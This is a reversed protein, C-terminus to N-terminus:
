PRILSELTEYLVEPQVPKSLHANLGAQMSRQVDEDFANATLAIIPITKADERDMARIRRTAELGDMEPMRMDMLIADYYGAPHDTVKEVAIRGNVALDVQMGRTQLVMQMIEANIQVDEALLIHRGKLDAKTQKQKKRVGKRNMASRFEEIVAAAFLPKSLFSDVGAELAEELVDDWRYATLIIIASENGVIERIRRTTEVGDMEPMQWDVLILNYPKRRAHRLRVLEVAEGGSAATEADIGAKGLVLKAHECAVPDDDIILVSMDQPHIEGEEEGDERRDADMLTVTVTFVSGKGKESEVEITGNMMEVISKTIALGLGSSGYKNTTSSDEQAFTDFIRPLFEPSMGIGTDAITFRLTSQRDLRATREVTLEVHGGEPTFKVANSLINILVQRLKMTDGIYYDDIETNIHCQYDLGKESCQGSFLTNVTELLKRFSFEENRLTMRGSEIRSMDLIDNILNLLHDASAGIKELYGRTRDPLDPDNLAINDLGIIANMPTRIEHSMNSLFATKARNAEEAAGLADSLTQQQDLNRRTEADVDTFCAGVNNIVDGDMEGPHHVGAFRVMEYSDQGHRHVMYTYSIVHSRTLGERIADPQIFRLFEERYADTIYRNAYATVSELYRFREGVKFGDEIDAHAQYCIGEDKDLELYYVSWFDSALATIMQEQQERQKEEALLQEQLALRRELEQQKVRNEADSTEKEIRLRATRRYQEIVYAFVLLMVLVTLLSQLIGRRVAGESISSIQQSIVSERILYTLMWDTGEVPIYSLTERIGKYTFSVERSVGDQFDQRVQDFSYGEEYEAQSLAELLNDEVALGGLVTNSLAVGDKTYINCFTSGNGEPQMSVGSLMEKMDIEMFCVALTNDQFPIDGAPAAIVVKKDPTKLNRVYIQPGSISTHDIAYDEGAARPGTSTYVTGDSGIFAFRELGFLQKMKTQYAQLAEPSELDDETMLELTTQMDKIRDKLNEAVVQERRGALEDLYLLSVARVADETDKRASRGTWLTGLLLIVMVAVLGIIAILATNKRRSEM